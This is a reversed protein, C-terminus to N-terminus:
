STTNPVSELPVRPFRDSGRSMEDLDGGGGGSFSSRAKVKMGKRWLVLLSGMILSCVEDDDKRHKTSVPDPTSKIGFFMNFWWKGFHDLLRWLEAWLSTAAFLM